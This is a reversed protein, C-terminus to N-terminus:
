RLRAEETTVSRALRICLTDGVVFAKEAEIRQLLEDGARRPGDGFAWLYDDLLVWGGPKVLPVWDAVDQCVDDYRHSGDIHLVAIEGSVDIQGFEATEIQGAAAAKLYDGVAATAPRRIYNVHSFGSLAVVFSRHVAQWDVDVVARNIIEAGVGQDRSSPLDWPDICILNGVGHFAALWALAFASRGYASGIEVVDGPVTLRFIHTLLWIKIDDSEGPIGSYSWHLNAYRAASLAPTADEALSRAERCVKAWAFARKQGACDEVHPQENTLHFSVPFAADKNFEHLVWWVGPHPSHVRSIGEQRLLAVFAERFGGATVYPLYHCEGSAVQEPESSAEVLRVGVSQMAKKFVDSRPMGAPFILVCPDSNM